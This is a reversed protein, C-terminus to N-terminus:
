LVPMLCFPIGAYVELQVSPPNCWLWIPPTEKFSEFPSELLGITYSNTGFLKTEFGSSDNTKTPPPACREDWM